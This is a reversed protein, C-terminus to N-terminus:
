RIESFNHINVAFYFQGIFFSLFHNHGCISISISFYTKRYLYFEKMGHMYCTIWFYFELKNTYSHITILNIAERQIHKLDIVFFKNLQKVCGFLQLLFTDLSKVFETGQLSQVEVLYIACETSQIELSVFATSQFAKSPSPIQWDKHNRHAQCFM